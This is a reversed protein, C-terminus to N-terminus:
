RGTRARRAALAGMSAAMGICTTAVQPQILQMMDYIAVGADIKVARLTSTCRIERDADRRPRDTRGGDARHLAVPENVV